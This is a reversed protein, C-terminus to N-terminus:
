MPAAGLAGGAQSIPVAFGIGVFFPQKSPNALATVVGVVRGNDDLLPGGSNGPNVAADFQLLDKLTVRGTDIDRGTASIVGSSLSFTLGLPNGAAHVRSGIPGPAGLTAPVVVEPLTAPKLTALDREPEATLIRAPSKTGDAFSVEIGGAGDVVHHATLITGDANAVFGTGTASGQEIVVLSPAIREYAAQAPNPQQASETRAQDLMPSVAARSAVEGTWPLFPSMTNTTTDYRYIGTSKDAGRAATFRNFVYLYRPNRPDSGMASSGNGTVPDDTYQYKITASGDETIMGISGNTGSSPVRMSSYWLDGTCRGKSPDVAVTVSDTARVTTSLGGDEYFTFSAAGQVNQSVLTTCSFRATEGPELYSYVDTETMGSVHNVLPCKEDEASEFFLRTTSTNRVDYTYTVPGGGAPVETASPTVTLALRKDTSTGSGTLAIRDSDVRREPPNPIVMSAAAVLLVSLLVILRNRVLRANPGSEGSDTPDLPRDSAAM